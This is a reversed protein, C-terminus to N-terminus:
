FQSLLSEHPYFMSHAHTCAPLSTVARTTKEAPSFGEMLSCSTQLSIIKQFTKLTARRPSEGHSKHPSYSRSLWWSKPPSCTLWAPAPHSVTLVQADLPSAAPGNASFSKYRIFSKSQIEGQEWASQWAHTWTAATQKIEIVWTLSLSDSLTLMPFPVFHKIRVLLAPSTFLIRKRCNQYFSFLFPRLDDM